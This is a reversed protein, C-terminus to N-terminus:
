NSEIMGGVRMENETDKVNFGLNQKFLKNGVTRNQTIKDYKYQSQRMNNVKEPENVHFEM